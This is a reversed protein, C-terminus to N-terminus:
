RANKAREILVAKIAEKPMDPLDSCDAIKKTMTENYIAKEPYLVNMKKGNITVEEPEANVPVGAEKQLAADRMTLAVEMALAMGTNKSNDVIAQIAAIGAEKDAESAYGMIGCEIGDIKLIDVEANNRITRIIEVISKRTNTKTINTM